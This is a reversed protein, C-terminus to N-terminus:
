ARSIARARLPTKMVVIFGFLETMDVGGGGHRVGVPPVWEFERVLAALFCKVYMLGLGAGPCSRQGVGFPMMRIEKQGPLPGVGEGEGGALFREPSFEDPDTWTKSAIDKLMFYVKIGGPPPPAAGVAVDETRVDRLILPFPPHLRLCELIVAHLYPMKGLREDSVDGGDDGALEHRLKSQVDPRTILHALPWEVCAVISETAGLFEVILSVMEDETLARKKGGADGDPVQLDILSDVYPRVGGGSDCRRPRARVLPLFLLAQKGRFALFRRWRKWHVLKALSSGGAFVRAEGIAVRFEQMMRQMALVHSPEVGDGFCLRTLLAFVATYLSDRIVVVDGADRSRLSGVLAEVAEHQLPALLGLRWPQLMSATLNRRLTRWHPGYPVTTIGHSHRRRRRGTILPVPFPTPPRNSFADAQAILMHRAIAPDRVKISRPGDTSRRFVALLAIVALVLTLLELAEMTTETTMARMPPAARRPGLDPGEGARRASALARRHRAAAAREGVGAAAPGGRRRRRSSPWPRRAGAREASSAAAAPGGRERSSPRPRRRRSAGCAGSRGSRSRGRSPRRGSWHAAGGSGAVGDGSGAAPDARAGGERRGRTAARAGGEPQARRRM